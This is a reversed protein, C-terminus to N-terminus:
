SVTHSFDAPKAATTTSAHRLTAVLWLLAIGSVLIALMVENGFIIALVGAVGSISAILVVVARYISATKAQSLAAADSFACVIIGLLLVVGVTGRVSSILAVDTAQLLAIYTGVAAASFLTAGVDKRTLTM